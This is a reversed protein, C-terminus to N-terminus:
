HTTKHLTLQLPQLVQIHHTTILIYVARLERVAMGDEVVQVERMEVRHLYGRQISHQLKLRLLSLVVRVEAEQELLIEELKVM